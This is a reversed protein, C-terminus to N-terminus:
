WCQVLLSTKSTFFHTNQHEQPDETIPDEKPEETTGKTPDNTTVYERLDKVILDEKSEETIPDEKPKQFGM